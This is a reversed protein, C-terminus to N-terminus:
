KIIFKLPPARYYMTDKYQVTINNFMLIDGREISEELHNRWLTDLSNRKFFDGTTETYFSIQNTTDNIYPEHKVYMLEFSVVPYLVNKNDRVLIASDLLNLVAPRPVTDGLLLGWSSKFSLKNKKAATAKKQQASINLSFIVLSCCLLYSRFKM